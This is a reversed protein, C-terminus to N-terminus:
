DPLHEANAPYSAQFQRILTDLQGMPQLFKSRGEPPYSLEVEPHSSDTMYLFGQKRVWQWMKGFIRFMNENSIIVFGDGFSQANLEKLFASAHESHKPSKFYLFYTKKM